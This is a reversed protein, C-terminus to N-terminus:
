SDGFEDFGALGVRERGASVREPLPRADGHSSLAAPGPQEIVRELAGRSTARAAM